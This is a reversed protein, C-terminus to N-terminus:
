TTTVKSIEIGVIDVEVTDSEVTNWNGDIEITLLICM